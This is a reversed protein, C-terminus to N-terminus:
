LLACICPFYIFTKMLCLMCTKMSCLRSPAAVMKLVSKEWAKQEELTKEHKEKEEKEKAEREVEGRKKQTKREKREKHSAFLKEVRM